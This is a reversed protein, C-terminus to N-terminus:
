LHYETMGDKGAYWVGCIREGCIGASGTRVGESTAIVANHLLVCNVQIM